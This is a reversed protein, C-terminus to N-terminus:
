FSAGVCTFGIGLSLSDEVGDERPNFNGAADFLDVDPGLLSAILDNNKLEEVTIMLDGDPEPEKDFLDVILAATEGCAPPVMACGPDSTITENLMDAITPLVDDNLAQETIAGGLKGSCTGAVSDVDAQIKAGVLEVTLVDAGEVLPLQITVTAPGGNFQGGVITGPLQQSASTSATFTGSGSFDPPGGVDEGLIVQWGANGWNTLDDAQIEHLLILSGGNIAEDVQMQIDVDNMALVALIGGLANDPRNQPDGDINLAVEQSQAQTTPVTATNSVYQHMAGMPEIAADPTGGSDDGGCGVALSSLALAGAVIGSKVVKMM